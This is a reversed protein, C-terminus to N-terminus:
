FPALFALKYIDIVQAETQKQQNDYKVINIAM